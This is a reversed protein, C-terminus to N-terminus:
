KTQSGGNENEKSNKVKKGLNKELVAKFATKFSMESEPTNENDPFDESDLESLLSVNASAVGVLFTKKGARVIIINEGKGVSVSDIIKLKKGGGSRLSYRKGILKTSIYALYLIFAIGLITAFIVGVQSILSDNM